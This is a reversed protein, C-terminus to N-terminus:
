TSLYRSMKLDVAGNKGGNNVTCVHARLNVNGRYNKNVKNKELGNLKIQKGSM